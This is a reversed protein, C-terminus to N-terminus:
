HLMEMDEEENDANVGNQSRDLSNVSIEEDDNQSCLVPEHKTGDDKILVLRSAIKKFLKPDEKKSYTKKDFFLKMNEPVNVLTDEEQMLIVLIEFAPDKESEELCMTFEKRCWKGDIFGQSVVIIACNCNNIAYKINTDILLGLEFDRDHTFIKLPPHHKKELEPIVSGFVFEWDKDFNYCLFTDFKRNRKTQLLKPKKAILFRRVLIALYIVFIVLFIPLIIALPDVSYQNKRSNCEPVQSWQGSHYCTVRSNGTVVHEGQCIYQHTAGLHYFKRSQTSNLLFGNKVAPPAPCTVPKYFCPISGKVSPLYNCNVTNFIDSQTVNGVLDPILM